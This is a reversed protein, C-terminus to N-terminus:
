LGHSIHDVQALVPIAMSTLIFVKQRIRLNIPLWLSNQASFNCSLKQTKSHLIYPTLSESIFYHLFSFM